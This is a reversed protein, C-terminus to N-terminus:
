ANSFGQAIQLLWIVQSMWWTMVSPPAYFGFITSFSFHVVARKESLDRM